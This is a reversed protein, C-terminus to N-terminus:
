TMDVEVRIQTGKGPRSDILLNGAILDVRERLSIMGLGNASKKVTGPEFGCGDDRISLIVKNRKRSLQIDIHDARAHKVANQVSEQFIRYLHRALKDPMPIDQADVDVNLGKVSNLGRAELEIAQALSHQELNFPKLGQVLRNMDEMAALLENSIPRLGADQTSAEHMQLRLRATALRQNIGDHLERALHKRELESLNVLKLSMNRLQNQMAMLRLVYGVLLSLLLLGLGLEDSRLWAQLPDSSLFLLTGISLALIGSLVSAVAYNGRRVAPLAIAFIYVVAALDLLFVITFGIATFQASVMLLLSLCAMALSIMLTRSFFGSARGLLAQTYIILPIPIAMGCAYSLRQLFASKLGSQYFVLSDFGYSLLALFFLSVFAIHEANYRRLTFLTLLGVLLSVILLALLTGQSLVLPREVEAKYRWAAGAYAIGIPGQALGPFTSWAQVEILLINGEAKLLGNPLPYYRLSHADSVMEVGNPDIRGNAGLFEGNLFARDAELIRGLLLGLGSEAAIDGADFRLYYWIREFQWNSYDKVIGPVAQAQWAPNDFPGSLQEELREAPRPEYIQWGQEQLDLLVPAKNQAHVATVATLLLM